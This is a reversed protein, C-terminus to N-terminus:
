AANLGFSIGSGSDKITNNRVTYTASGDVDLNFGTRAYEVFNNELTISSTGGGDSWVGRGWRATGYKTGQGGDGTIYNGEVLTSGSGLVAFSIARADVDLGDNANSGGAVTSYFINNSYTHDGGPVLTNVRQLSPYSASYILSTSNNVFRLGSITVDGNSQVVM